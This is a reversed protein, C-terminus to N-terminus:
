TVPFIATYVVIKGGPLCSANAENKRLLTVKWVFSPRDRGAVAEIGRAVRQVETYQPGSSIINARNQQLTKAYQQNGLQTQQQDSLAVHEARHTVPTTQKRTHLLLSAGVVVAAIAVAILPRAIIFALVGRGSM